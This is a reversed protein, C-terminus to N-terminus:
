PRPSTRESAVEVTTSFAIAANAPTEARSTGQRVQAADLLGQKNGNGGARKSAAEKRVLTKSIWCGFGDRRAEIVVEIPEFGIPIHQPAQDLATQNQIIEQAAEQVMMRFRV